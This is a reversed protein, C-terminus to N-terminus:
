TQVTRRRPGFVLFLALLRFKIHRNGTNGTVLM